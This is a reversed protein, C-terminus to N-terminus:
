STFNVENGIWNCSRGADVTITSGTMSQNGAAFLVAQAVDHHAVTRNLPIQAIRNQWREPHNDRQLQNINTAVLGPAVDNVRINFQALELATSKTLQSLAAKTAEYGSLTPTIVKRSISTINVINYDKKPTTQNRIMRRSFAQMLFFPAFFNVEFLKKMDEETLDVFNKRIGIGANNILIDVDDLFQYSEEVFRDRSNRNSLDVQFARAKVSSYHHEKYIENIKLMVEAQEKASSLYAIVINAGEAAFGLAISAGLSQMRGAGTIVVKKDKFRAM